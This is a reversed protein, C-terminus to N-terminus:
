PTCTDYCNAVATQCDDCEQSSVGYEECTYNCQRAYFNCAMCTDFAQSPQAMFILTFLLSALVTIRIAVRICNTPM